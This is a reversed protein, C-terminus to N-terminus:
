QNLVQPQVSDITTGSYVQDIPTEQHYVLRWQGQSQRWLSSRLSLENESLFNARRSSLYTLLMVDESILKTRFQFGAREAQSEQQIWRIVETKDFFKGNHGLEIFEDDILASLIEIPEKKAILQKEHKIIKHALSSEM